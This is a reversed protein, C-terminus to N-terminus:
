IYVDLILLDSFLLSGRVHSMEESFLPAIVGVKKVFIIYLEINLHDIFCSSLVIVNEFVCPLNRIM